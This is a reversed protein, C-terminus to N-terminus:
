APLAPVERSWRGEVKLERDQTSAGEYIRYDLRMPILKALMGQAPCYREASLGISRRLAEEQVGRGTVEYEIVANTFVKPHEGAQEAKVEVQFDIIEQRKKRLISIVDMATCGALSLAMLEMPRFGDDDGGVGREAGLTVEFGSDATGSFTLGRHWRVRANM